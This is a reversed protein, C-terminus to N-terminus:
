SRHTLAIGFTFHYKSAGHWQTSYFFIKKKKWGNLKGHTMAIDLIDSNERIPKTFQTKLNPFPYKSPLIGKKM